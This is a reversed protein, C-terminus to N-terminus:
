TKLSPLTRTVQITARWIPYTNASLGPSQNNVNNGLSPQNGTVLINEGYYTSANVAFNVYSVCHPQFDAPFGPIKYPSYLRVAPPIPPNGSTIAYQEPNTCPYTCFNSAENMDIWLADIDVGNSPNFFNYFEQFRM